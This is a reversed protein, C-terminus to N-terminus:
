QSRFLHNNNHFPLCFECPIEWYHTELALLTNSEYLNDLRNLECHFFNFFKVHSIKFINFLDTHKFIQYTLRSLVTRKHREAFHFIPFSWETIRKLTPDHDIEATDFVSGDSTRVTQAEFTSSDSSPASERKEQDTPLQTATTTLRADHHDEESM